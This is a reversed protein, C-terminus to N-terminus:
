CLGDGRRSSCICGTSWCLEREVKCHFRDDCWHNIHTICHMQMPESFAADQRHELWNHFSGTQSPICVDTGSSWHCNQRKGTTEFKSWDHLSWASLSCVNAMFHDNLMQSRHTEARKHKSSQLFTIIEEILDYFCNLAKGKNLWRVDNHFLM